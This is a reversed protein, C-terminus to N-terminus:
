RGAGDIRPGLVRVRRGGPGVRRELEEAAEPTIGNKPYYIIRPNPYQVPWNPDPDAAVGLQKELQTWAEDVDGVDVLHKRKADIFEFRGDRYGVVDVEQKSYGRRKVNISVARVDPHALAVDVEWEMTLIRDGIRPNFERADRLMVDLKGRLDRFESKVGEFGGAKSADPFRRDLEAIKRQVTEANRLWVGVRRREEETLDTWDRLKKALGTAARGLAGNAQAKVLREGAVRPGLKAIVTELADLAEPDDTLAARLGDLRRQDASSVRGGGAPNATHGSQDAPLDHVAALIRAACRAAADRHFYGAQEAGGRALKRESECMGANRGVAVAWQQISPGHQASLQAATAADLGRWLGTGTFRLPVVSAFTALLQRYREDAQSGQRLAARSAARAQDLEQAYTTMAGACAHYAAGLHDAYRPLTGLKGDLIEAYDGWLRLGARETAVGHLRQTHRQAQEARQRFQGALARVQEPSGPTPDETLDLVAWNEGGPLSM